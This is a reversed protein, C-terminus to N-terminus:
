TSGLVGVQVTRPRDLDAKLLLKARQALPEALEYDSRHLDPLVGEECAAMRAM